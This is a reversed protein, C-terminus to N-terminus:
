YHLWEWSHKSTRNPISIRCCDLPLVGEPKLYLCINKRWISFTKANRKISIWFKQFASISSSRILEKGFSIKHWMKDNRGVSSAKVVLKREFLHVKSHSDTGL